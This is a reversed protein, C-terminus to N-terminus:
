VSGHVGDHGASAQAAADPVSPEALVGGNTTPPGLLGWSEDERAAYERVIRGEARRLRESLSASTVGLKAALRQLNIPRPIDYYGTAIAARVAADQAPTLLRRTPRTAAVSRVDLNHGREELTAAFRAVAAREGHVSVVATGDPHLQLMDMTVDAFLTRWEQPLADLEARLVRGDGFQMRAPAFPEIWEAARGVPGPPIAQVLLSWGEGARLLKVRIPLPPPPVGLDGARVVLRCSVPTPRTM